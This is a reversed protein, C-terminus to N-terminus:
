LDLVSGVVIVRIDAVVRTSFECHVRRALYGAYAGFVGPFGMLCYIWETLLRAKYPSLLRKKPPWFTKVKTRNM